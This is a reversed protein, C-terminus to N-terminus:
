RRYVMYDINNICRRQQKELLHQPQYIQM